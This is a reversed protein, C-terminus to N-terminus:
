RLSLARPLPRVIYIQYVGKRGEDKERKVWHRNLYSFLRNVYNAGTTFRTWEAAYYQLLPLGSLPDSAQGPLSPPPDTRVRTPSVRHIPLPSPPLPRPRVKNLTDLHASYYKTLNQYLDAGM